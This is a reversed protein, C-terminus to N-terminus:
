WAAGVKARTVESELAHLAIVLADAEDPSHGIIEELSKESQTMKSKRTKPPLYMRGHQDYRLPMLALQRRLETYEAPIGFGLPAGHDDKLRTPDLLGDEGNSIGSYVPRLRERLRGYMEARRNKYPYREEVAERRKKFSQVGQTPEPAVVEGFAVTRVKYGMARLYDAHEKGGGGRDFFTREPRVNYKQMLNIVQRIIVSTDVTPYSLLKVLGYDDVVAFATKDGGEAPDVGIAKGPRSWGHLAGANAAMREARDLWDAPYLLLEAGEYFEADLGICQKVKDWTQRRKVYDAWPLVGPVVMEGTPEKGARLQALALRVNPSNEGKIKLVKRYLAM